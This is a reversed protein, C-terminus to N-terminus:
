RKTATFTCTPAGTISGQMQRGSVRATWRTDALGMPTGVMDFSLQDGKIKGNVITAPPPDFRGVFATPSSQTLAFIGQFNLEGCRAAWNWAGAIAGSVAVTAAGGPAKKPGPAKAPPPEKAPGGSISQDPKGLTGGTSGAQAVRLDPTVLEGDAASAPVAASGSALGATAVFLLRMVM